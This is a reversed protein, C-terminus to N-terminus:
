AGRCHARRPAAAPSASLASTGHVTGSDDRAGVGLITAPGTVMHSTTGTGSCAGMLSPEAAVEGTFSQYQSVRHLPSGITNQWGHDCLSLNGPSILLRNEGLRAVADDRERRAAEVVGLDARLVIRTRRRFIQMLEDLQEADLAKMEGAAGGAAAGRNGVRNIM